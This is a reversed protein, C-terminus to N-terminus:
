KDRRADLLGLLAILTIPGGNPGSVELRDSVKIGAKELISNAAELEARNDTATHVDGTKDVILTESTLRERLKEAAEVSAAKLKNKADTIIETLYQDTLQDLLDQHKYYTSRAIHAAKAADTITKGEVRAM